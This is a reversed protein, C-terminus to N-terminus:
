SQYENRITIRGESPNLQILADWCNGVNEVIARKLGSARDRLLGVVATNEISQLRAVDGDAKNLKDIAEVYHDSLTDEQVQDLSKQIACIQELTATLTKNFWLEGTLLELKNTADKLEEQL